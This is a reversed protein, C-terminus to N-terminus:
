VPNLYIKKFDERKLTVKEKKAIDLAKKCNQM